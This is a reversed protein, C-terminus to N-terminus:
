RHSFPFGLATAPSFITPKGGRSCCPSHQTERELGAGIGVVCAGDHLDLVAGLIMEELCVIAFTRARLHVISTHASDEITRLRWTSESQQRRQLRRYVNVLSRVAMGGHGHQRQQALALCIDDLIPNLSVRSPSFCKTLNKLVRRPHTTGLDPNQLSSKRTTHENVTVAYRRSHSFFFQVSHGSITSWYM